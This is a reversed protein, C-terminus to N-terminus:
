REPTLDSRVTDAGGQVQRHLHWDVPQDPDYRCSRGTTVSVKLHHALEPHVADIAKLATSIRMTVAKRAREVPDGSVRTRGGLGLAASLEAVLFEKEQELREVRGLDNDVTAADLEAELEQLRRGYASRATADLLPGTSGGVESRGPGGAAEVLDLVHVDRGPAALLTALDRIGKADRVTATRGRFDLQWLSGSREFVAAGPANTAGLYGDLRGLLEAVQGFCAAGYGDVAYLEAYPTLARRVAEAPEREDVLMAAEGLLWLLEVWEGNKPLADIGATMFRRIHRRAQDQAGIEAYLLAFSCDTGDIVDTWRLFVDLLERLRDQDHRRRALHWRLTWTMMEANASQAQVALDAVEEAFREARELDGELAALMGRWMPVLWSYTPLRLRHSLTAYAELDVRVSTLDGLELWSGIRIRRALLELLAHERAIAIMRGAAEIREHVYDPGSKADCLAALAAAEVAEDGIGAAAAAAQEALAIREELPLSTAGALSQRALLAARLSSDGTRLLDLAQQILGVLSPDGLDVEFGGVGGGMGLVALGLEDGDSVALADETVKRLVDRGVSIQGSQVLAEGYRRRLSLSGQGLDLAMRYHATAQEYAFGASELDGAQEALAAARRRADEGHALSWQRALEAPGEGQLREAV